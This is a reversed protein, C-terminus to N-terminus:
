DDDAFLIALSLVMYIVYLSLSLFGFQRPIQGKSLVGTAVVLFTNLIIMVFGVKLGQDLHVDIQPGPVARLRFAFGVGLGVLMNFVPGAFCATLAMNALGKKAMALNTSLDGVSNGWALVTLGLVPEPVGLSVGFFELTSVLEDAFVDIWTAAVFFGALALAIGPTPPLKPKGATLHAAVAAVAVGLATALFFTSPPFLRPAFVDEAGRRSAYGCLWIPAGLLSLCLPARGYSEESTLPVTARRAATFPLELIAAAKAPALPMEAIETLHNRARDVLDLVVLKRLAEASRPSVDGGGEEDGLLSASFAGGDLPSAGLDLPDGGGDIVVIPDSAGRGRIPTADPDDDDDDHFISRTPRDPTKEEDGDDDAASRRAPGHKRVDHLLTLLMEVAPPEESRAREAAQREYPGGPRRHWLDAALVVLVFTVYSGLLVGVTQMTVVGHVGILVAVLTASLLYASVDRLLAGKAKAGDAVVMVAGAVCTGVFMGAGTLAGLALQYGDASSSVAHITSSVDPAGNGLALLTVGAFRPPLGADASLQELAPSFYEDATSGLLVFLLGLWGVYVVCLLGRSLGSKACYYAAVYANDCGESKALACQEGYTEAARAAACTTATGNRGVLDEEASARPTAWVALFFLLWRM